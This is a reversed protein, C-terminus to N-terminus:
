KQKEPGAFDKSDDQQIQLIHRLRQVEDRLIDRSSREFQLKKDNEELISNNHEMQSRLETDLMPAEDVTLKAQRLKAALRQQTLFLSRKADEVEKLRLDLGQKWEFLAQLGSTEM